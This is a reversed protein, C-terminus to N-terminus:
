VIHKQAWFTLMHQNPEVKSWEENMVTNEGKLKM